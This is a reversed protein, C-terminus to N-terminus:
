LPHSCPRLAMASQACHAMSLAHHKAVEFRTGVGSSAPAGTTPTDCGTNKLPLDPSGHLGPARLKM